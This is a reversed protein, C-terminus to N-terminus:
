ESVSKLKECYYEAIIEVPIVGFRNKDREWTKHWPSGSLHTLDSLKAGSMNGYSEWVEQIIRSAFSGEPITDDTELRGSVKGNGFKQLAKYLKPIVPGFQWAHINNYTLPKKTFGLHFGNAIYVLKQLQMNTIYCSANEAIEIFRNAIAKASVGSDPIKSM